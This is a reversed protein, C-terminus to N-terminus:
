ARCRPDLSSEARGSSIPRSRTTTRRCAVRCGPRSSPPVGCQWPRGVGAPPLWDAAAATVPLRALRLLVLRPTPPSSSTSTAEAAAPASRPGRTSLRPHMPRPTPECSCCALALFLLPPQCLPGQPRAQRKVDADEGWMGGRGQKTVRQGRGRVQVDVLAARLVEVAADGPGENMDGFLLQVEQEPSGAAAGAAAERMRALVLAAGRRRAEPSEHDLHTNFVRIRWGDDGSDVDVDATASAAAATGAAPPHRLPVSLAMRPLHAGWAVSGPVGPSDSLWFAAPPGAPVLSARSFLVACGEGALRGDDRGIFVGGWPGEVDDSGGEVPSGGNLM